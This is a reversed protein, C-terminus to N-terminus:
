RNNEDGVKKIGLKNIYYLPVLNTDFVFFDKKTDIFTEEFNSIKQFIEKEQNASSIKVVDNLTLNWLKYVRNVNENFKSISGAIEGTFLRFQNGKKTGMTGEFIYEGDPLDKTYVSDTIIQIKDIPLISKIIRLMNPSIHFFDTILECNLNKNLFVEEMISPTRHHLPRMANCFHTVHNLGNKTFEHICEQTADSHGCSGIIKLQNLKKQFDINTLEPAYTILRVNNGSANQLKEILEPSAKRMYTVNQAGKKIPNLFPGELHIGVIAAMHEKEWPKSIIIEKMWKLFSITKEIEATLTTMLIKNIGEKLISKLYSILKKENQDFVDYGYGGHVHIDFFGPLAFYTDNLNSTDIPLTIEKTILQNYAKLKMM